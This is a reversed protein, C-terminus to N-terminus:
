RKKQIYVKRMVDKANIKDPDDPDSPGTHFGKDVVCGYSLEKTPLVVLMGWFADTALHYCEVYGDGDKDEAYIPNDCIMEETGDDYVIKECDVPQITEVRILMRKLVPDGAWVSAACGVIGLVLVACIIYRLPKM